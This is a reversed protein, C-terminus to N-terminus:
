TCATLTPSYLDGTIAGVVFVADCLDPDNFVNAIRQLIQRSAEESFFDKGAMAM